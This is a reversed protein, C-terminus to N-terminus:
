NDLMRDAGSRGSALVFECYALWRRDSIASGQGAVALVDACLARVRVDDLGQRMAPERLAGLTEWGWDEVLRRAADINALWGAQLASPSLLVSKAVAAGAGRLLWTDGWGAGTAGAEM